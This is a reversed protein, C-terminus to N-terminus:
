DIRHLRIWRIEIGAQPDWREGLELGFCELLVVNIDKGIWNYQQKQKPSEGESVSGGVRQVQVALNGGDASRRQHQRRVLRAAELLWLSRARAVNDAHELHSLSLSRLPLPFAQPSM